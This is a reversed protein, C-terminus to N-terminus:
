LLVQILLVMMFFALAAYDNKILIGKVFIGFGPWLNRVTNYISYNGLKELNDDYFFVMYKGTINGTPEVFILVINQSLDFRFASVCKGDYNNHIIQKKIITRQDKGAFRDLKFKMITTTNSFEKDNNDENKRTGASEIFAAIYTNNDGIEFLSYELSFIPLKLEFFNVTNWAYYNISEPNDIDILETLSKYSSMSFLYQKSKTTDNNLSVFLNRSEFRGKYNSSGCDQCIMSDIKKYKDPFYHRGNQNLGYFLRSQNEGNDLSFEVITVNKKNTAAHGARWNNDNFIIVDNFCSTQKLSSVNKCNGCFTLDFLLLIEYLFIFLRIKRLNTTLTLM